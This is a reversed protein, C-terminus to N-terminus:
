GEKLPKVGEMLPVVQVGFKLKIRGHGDCVECSTSFTDHKHQFYGRGHCHECLFVQTIYDRLKEPNSKNGNLLGTMCNFLQQTQYQKM